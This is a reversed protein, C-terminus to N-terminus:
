SVSAELPFFKVDHLLFRMFAVEEATGRKTYRREAVAFATREDGSSADYEALSRIVRLTRSGSPPHRRYFEDLLERLRGEKDDLTVEAFQPGVKATIDKAPVGAYVHNAEMDQTVVSGILAMSGSRATIPSVICHGVFWVDDEIILPTVSNWRCGQLLDGHRIHTWLQSYAGVGVGNGIALRGTANLITNQGFWSCHGITCLEDGNVLTSNHITSYDGISLEDIVVRTGAGIFCGDGIRLRRMRPESRGSFVVGDEIVVDRGIEVDAADATWKLGM